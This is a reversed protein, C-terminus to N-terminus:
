KTWDILDYNEGLGQVSIKRKWPSLDVHMNEVGDDDVTTRVKEECDVGRFSSLADGDGKESDDLNGIKEPRRKRKSM